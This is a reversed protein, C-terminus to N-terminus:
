KKKHLHFVLLSKVAARLNRRGLRSNILHPHEKKVTKCYDIFRRM